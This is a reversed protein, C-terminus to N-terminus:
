KFLIEVDFEVIVNIKTRMNIKNKKKKLSQVHHKRLNNDFNIKPKRSSSEYAHKLSEDNKKILTRKSCRRM